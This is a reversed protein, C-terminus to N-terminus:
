GSEKQATIAALAEAINAEAAAKDIGAESLVGTGNEFELLALLLHETGIYNHGLRLAERFTLELAKKADQDFPILEPLDDGSPPLAATAAQRVTDLLVDQAVIARSALSDRQTIMALVLHAPTIEANGAARAESMSQVVVQRARDTYRSFGQSPDLDPGSGKPVFRKQAAQKTVGMSTGIETWSAGSRRAQDVFHGILHDAVEGLHEAALVASSLQELADTHVKKIANILDDLRVQVAPPTPESM